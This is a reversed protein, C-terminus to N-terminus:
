EMTDISTSERDDTELMEELEAKQKEAFRKKKALWACKAVEDMEENINDFDEQEFIPM